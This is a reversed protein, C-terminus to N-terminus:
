DYKPNYLAGLGRQTNERHRRGNKHAAMNGVKIRCHPCFDKNALAPGKKGKRVRMAKLIENREQLKDVGTVIRAEEFNM